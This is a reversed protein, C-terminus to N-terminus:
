REHGPPVKDAQFIEAQEQKYALAAKIVDDVRMEEKYLHLSEAKVERGHATLQSDDMFVVVEAFEVEPLIDSIFYCAQDLSNNYHELAHDVVNEVTERLFHNDFGNYERELLNLFGEKDFGYKM